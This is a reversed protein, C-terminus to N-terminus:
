GVHLGARGVPGRTGLVDWEFGPSSAFSEVDRGVVVDGGSSRAPAFLHGRVDDLRAWVRTGGPHPRTHPRHALPCRRAAELVLPDVVSFEETRNRAPVSVFRSM